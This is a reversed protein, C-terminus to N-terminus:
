PEATKGGRGLKGRYFRDLIHPAVGLHFATRLTWHAVLTRVFGEREWRRRSTLARSTLPMFPAVKQVQRVFTVDEFLPIERIGETREYATRTVFIAQDGTATMFRRTRWNVARELLRYRREHAAPRIAFELCGAEVGSALAERIAAGVGEELWTDAHLFMLVGGSAHEAGRKLQGGRSKVSPIIRALRSVVQTTGDQSGGDVVIFEVNPGLATTARRITEEIEEEEDLTPIIVSFEPGSNEGSSNM